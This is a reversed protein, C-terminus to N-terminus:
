AIIKHDTWISSRTKLSFILGGELPSELLKFWICGMVIGEGDRLGMSEGKDKSSKM